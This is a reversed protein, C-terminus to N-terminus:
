FIMNTYFSQLAIHELNPGININLTILLKRCTFLTYPLKWYMIIQNETGLPFTSQTVDIIKDVKIIRPMELLCRLSMLFIFAINLIILGKKKYERYRM